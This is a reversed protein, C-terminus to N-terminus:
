TERDKRFGDIIWYSVRFIVQPIFYTIPIGAIFIIWGRENMNAFWNTEAIAYIVWSLVFGMSFVLVIRKFGESQEKMDEDERKILVKIQRAM